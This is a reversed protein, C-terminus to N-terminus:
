AHSNDSTAGDVLPDAQLELVPEKSINPPAKLEEQQEMRRQWGPRLRGPSAFGDFMVLLDQIQHPSLRHRLQGKGAGVSVRAPKPPNLGSLLNYMIILAKKALTSYRGGTFTEATIQLIRDAGQARAETDESAETEPNPQMREIIDQLTAKNKMPDRLRKGPEAAQVDLFALASASAKARIYHQRQAILKEATENDAEAMVYGLHKHTVPDQSICNLYRRANLHLVQSCGQLEFHASYAEVM